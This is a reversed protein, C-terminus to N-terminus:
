RRLVPLFLELQVEYAGMDCRATGDRNGDAHRPLGRQDALLLGGGPKACGAPNAADLAASGPGLAMTPTPGGNNALPQLQPSVAVRTHDDTFHCLSKAIRTVRSM